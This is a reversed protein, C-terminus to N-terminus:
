CARRGEFHQSGLLTGWNRRRGNDEGKSEYHTWWPAQPHMMTVISNKANNSHSPHYTTSALERTRCLHDKFHWKTVKTACEFTNYHLKYHHVRVINHQNNCPGVICQYM